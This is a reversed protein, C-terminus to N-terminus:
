CRSAAMFHYCAIPTLLIYIGDENAGGVAPLTNIRANYVLNGSGIREIHSGVALWHSDGVIEDPSSAFFM